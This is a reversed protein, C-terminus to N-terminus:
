FCLVNSKWLMIVDNLTPSRLNCSQGITICNTQKKTKKHTKENKRSGLHKWAWLWGTVQKEEDISQSVVVYKGNLRQGVRTQADAEDVIQGVLNATHYPTGDIELGNIFFSIKTSFVQTFQHDCSLFYWFLWSFYNLAYVKRRIKSQYRVLLFFGIMLRCPTARNIFYDLVLPLKDNCDKDFYLWSLIKVYFGVCQATLFCIVGVFIQNTWYDINNFCIFNYALRWPFLNM